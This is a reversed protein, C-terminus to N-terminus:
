PSRPSRPYLLIYSGPGRRILLTRARSAEGRGLRKVEAFWPERRLDRDREILEPVYLDVELYGGATARQMDAGYTFPALAAVPRLDNHLAGGYVCVLKGAPARPALALV